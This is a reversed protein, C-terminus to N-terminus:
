PMLQRKYVDLHTYSVPNANPDNFGHGSYYFVVLDHANPQLNNVASAVNQKSFDAGFIVKSDFGIGMFEALDKFMKLNRDKDLVQRKYM